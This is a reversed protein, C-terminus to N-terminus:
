LDILTFLSDFREEKSCILKKFEQFEDTDKNEIENPKISNLKRGIYVNFVFLIKEKNEYKNFLNLLNVYVRDLEGSSSIEYYLKELDNVM